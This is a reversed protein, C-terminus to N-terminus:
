LSPCPPRPSCSTDARWSTSTSTITTTTTIPASRTRSGWWGAWPAESSPTLISSYVATWARGPQPPASTFICLSATHSFMCDFCFTPCLLFFRRLPVPPPSVFASTPLPPFFPDWASLRRGRGRHPRYHFPPSWALPPIERKRDLRYTM